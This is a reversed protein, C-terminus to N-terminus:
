KLKFILNISIFANSIVLVILWIYSIGWLINVAQKCLQWIGQVTKYPHFTDKQIASVLCYFTFGLKKEEWPLM